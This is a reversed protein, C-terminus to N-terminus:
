SLNFSVEMNDTMGAQLPNDRKFKLKAPTSEGRTGSFVAVVDTADGKIGEPGTTTEVLWRGESLFPM